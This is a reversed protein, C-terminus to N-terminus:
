SALVQSHRAEDFNAVSLIPIDLLGHGRSPARPIVNSGDRRLAAAFAGAM